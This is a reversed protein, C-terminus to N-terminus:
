HGMGLGGDVPIVAGTIFGAADSAVFRVVGAVEEPKASRGLPTGAVLERRREEPLGETMDTDVLGPAVVNVTINRSGLERALSRALGILGAKAAAYNAQGPSGVLGVVSSIFILRGWRARVMRSTARRAVHFAGTLNTALVDGWVDDSMRLLLTDATMGANAVVIEPPGYELEVAEFADEVEHRNRVDCRVAFLGDPPPSNRFTVAVRHGAASLERAVALGIGRSGGTVLVSRGVTETV